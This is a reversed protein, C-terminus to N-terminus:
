SAGRRGGRARAHRRPREDGDDRLEGRHRPPAEHVVGPERPLRRVAGDGDAGAARHRLASHPRGALPRPVARRQRRSLAPPRLLIRGGYGVADQRRAADEDGRRHLRLARLIEHGTGRVDREGEGARPRHADDGPLVDGDMGHRRETRPARRRPADRQPRLRHHQRPRPLRGRLRQERRRRGQEGVLHLEADAQPLVERPVRPRGQRQPHPGHQLRALGGVRAGASQPRLVGMRVRPDPRQSAPVARLADALAAGQRLPRRHARLRRVSLRPGVGRVVPVGMQGAHLPRAHLQSPALARQPRRPAAAAAALESRRRRALHRCRLPVVAEVLPPRRLGPAPHKKGRRDRNQSPALRLVRPGRPPADPTRCGRQRQRSRRCPRRVGSAHGHRVVAGARDGRAALRVGKHRAHGSEGRRGRRERNAPPLRGEHVRQAVAGVARLRAAWEDRQRHLAPAHRAAARPPAASDDALLAGDATATIIPPQANRGDWAWTNRFWLQPILHLPAREPGRNHATVRMVLSEEDEKAVEIEIDFYRGDDSFGTDILEFEPERSSRARNREILEAYPFARQPYKYLMRQYAHSPLADVYFYCEKVDEGHNGEAPVLGFYREKLIPDRENWFAMSWCLIQYRDCFGGIGDEGWRYAKSRALDHPLFGWADGNASYDERVTGWARDAVYPGWKRWRALAHEDGGLRQREANM